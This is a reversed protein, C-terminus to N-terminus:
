ESEATGNNDDESATAKSDEEEDNRETDRADEGTAEDSTKEDDEGDTQEDDEDSTEEEAGTEGPAVGWEEASEEEASDAAADDVSEDESDAQATDDSSAGSGDEDADDDATPEEGSSSGSEETTEAVASEEDADGRFAEIRPTREIGAFVVLVDLSDAGSMPLDGSRLREIGVRDALWERGRSIADGRLWEPPGRFAVLGHTAADRPCEFTLTGRTAWGLTRQIAVGREFDETDDGLLSRKLGDLLSSSAGRWAALSRSAYGVTVLGGGDLTALVDRADIVQEGVTERGEQGVTLLEGVRETLAANLRGSHTRISRSGWLWAENDFVIQATAAENLDTLAQATNARQQDETEGAPLVSITYVPQEYVNALGAVLAPTVASATGGALGAAVVIADVTTPIGDEVARRLETRENEVIEAALERDGGTGDGGTEFQGIIHRNSRPIAGFADLSETDTDIAHVTELPSGGGTSLEGALRDIIRGGAGGVGIGAIEM